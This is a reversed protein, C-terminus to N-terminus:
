IRSFYERRQFEDKDAAEDFRRQESQKVRTFYRIFNDGFAACLGADARLAM